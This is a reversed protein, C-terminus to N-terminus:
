DECGKCLLINTSLKDARQDPKIAQKFEKELCHKHFRTAAFMTHKATGCSPNRANTCLKRMSTQGKIKLCIEQKPM